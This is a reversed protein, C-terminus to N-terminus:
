ITYYVQFSSQALSYNSKFFYIVGFYTGIGQDILTSFANTYQLINQKHAGRANRALEVGVFVMRIKDIYLYNAM